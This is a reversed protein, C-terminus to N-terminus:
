GAKTGNGERGLLSQLIKGGGDSTTQQTKRFGKPKRGRTDRDKGKATIAAPRQLSGDSDFIQVDPVDEVPHVEQSNSILTLAATLHEVALLRCSENCVHRGHVRKRCYPNWCRHVHTKRGATPTKSYLSFASPKKKPQPGRRKPPEPRLRTSLMKYTLHVVPEEGAALAESIQQWVGM